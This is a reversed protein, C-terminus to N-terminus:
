RIFFSVDFRLGFTLQVDFSGNSHRVILYVLSFLSFSFHSSIVIDDNRVDILDLAKELQLKSAGIVIGDDIIEISYFAKISDGYNSRIIIIIFM